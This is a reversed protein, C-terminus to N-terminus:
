ASKKSHTPCKLKITAYIAYPNSSSEPSMQPNGSADFAAKGRKFASVGDRLARYKIRKHSGVALFLKRRYTKLRRKISYKGFDSNHKKLYYSRSWAFHWYKMYHIARNKGSSNGQLHEAYIDPFMLIQADSKIARMCLDSEESFLFINEDFFGLKKLNAMDFLMCCGTVESRKVPDAGLSKHKEQTAPAFITVDPFHTAKEVLEDIQNQTLLMDPNVLLAYKTEIRELAVNTARGYGINQDLKIVTAKPYKEALINASDDPSCNDVIFVPCSTSALTDDLCKLITPASNYSIVIISVM